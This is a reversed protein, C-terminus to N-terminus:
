ATRRLDPQPASQGDAAVASGDTPASERSRVGEVLRVIDFATDNPTVVIVMCTGTDQLQRETYFWDPVGRDLIDAERTVARSLQEAERAPRIVVHM